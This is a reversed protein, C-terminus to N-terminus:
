GQLSLPFRSVTRISLSKEGPTYCTLYLTFRDPDQPLAQTMRRQNNHEAFGNELRFCEGSAYSMEAAGGLLTLARGADAETLFQEGRLLGPTFALEMRLPVNDMGETKLQLDLGDELIAASLTIELTERIQRRRSSPNDMAWWDSTAPRDGEFPLYYWSPFRCRLTFGQETQEIQEPQFHRKDCVNSYISILCSASGSQLALFRPSGTMATVTLNGRRWRGIGSAPWIKDYRHLLELRPCVQKGYSELEPFRMLMPLCMPLQGGGECAEWIIQSWSALEPDRSLWGALLYLGYYSSPYVKHGRDQRTSNLTFLTGDPELYRLMLTLNGRAAQLYQRDGTTLILRLMQDDNVANYIGASREAFEGEDDIDLGEGLYDDARRSFESRGTVLAGQKLCAAIAWRHNPTHFGGACIGECAREILEALSPLFEERYPSASQDLLFWADYLANATFATDPASDFNCASLDFCGDPKRNERLWRLGRRIAEALASSGSHRSLPHILAILQHALTFGMQRTDTHFDTLLYRGSPDQCRLERDTMSDLISLMRQEHSM